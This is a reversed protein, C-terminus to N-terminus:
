NRPAPTLSLELSNNGAQFEHVQNNGTANKPIIDAPDILGTPGSTQQAAMNAMEESSRAFTVEKVAVVQLLNKGPQVGTAKFKGGEINCGVVSGTGEMPTFTIMGKQVSVGDYQVTGEVTATPAGCGISTGLVLVALWLLPHRFANNMSDISRDLSLVCPRDNMM